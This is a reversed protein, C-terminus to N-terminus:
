RADLAPQEDAPRERDGLVPSRWFVAGLCLVGVLMLLVPLVSGTPPHWSGGFPNLHALTPHKPVGRQWRMMAYVLLVVHCPLLLLCFLRLMSRAHAATFLRREVVYGSYLPLGVLLPLLYRGATIFGVVNAQSIQILGPVVVGGVVIVFLRWRDVRDGVVAALIVLTAAASVWIWYFPTPMFADFWGAVGVMGKLYIEWQNLYVLAAKGIGYNYQPVGPNVIAATRMLVIWAVGAVAAAAIGASWWRVLRRSWLERLVERRQPLLVAALGAALWLWGLSRLTTLLVASVGVLWVLSTQDPPRPRFLLPIAASFFAIGAAIELGNPNIAGALHALMPSACALLSALMLGTRSWRALAAFACALLAASLAASVLRALVLGPWNPSLRLPLGVLAYYTPHYRGASTPESRVPGGSIQPSCGAPQRPDLGWCTAPAWLGAPVRQMAGMGDRGQGDWNDLVVPKPAVQGSVVGAARVAHHVEDAPGGYPAAFAWSGFVLFFGFFSAMWYRRGLSFASPWHIRLM